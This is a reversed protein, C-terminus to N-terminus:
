GVKRLFYRRHTFVSHHSQIVYNDGRLGEIRDGVQGPFNGAVVADVVQESRAATEIDRSQATGWTGRYSGVTNLTTLPNGESDAGGAPRKLTFSDRTLLAGLLSM